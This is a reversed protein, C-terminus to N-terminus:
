LVTAVSPVCLREEKTADLREAGFQAHVFLGPHPANKVTPKVAYCLQHLFAHTIGEGTKDVPTCLHTPRKVVFTQAPAIFQDGVGITVGRPFKPTDKAVKAAYCKYHDVEITPGVPAPDAVPSENTPGLLFAPKQTQVTITGLANKVLATQRVHKPQGKLAKLPYNELHTAADALPRGNLEAPTCLGKPKQVTVDLSEFADALTVTPPTVFPDGLKSTKGKYCLFPDVCSPAGSCAGAACTDPGTCSEGDDCSAGEAKAPNSCLGSIPDCTGVDHCQDLAGCSVADTGTCV